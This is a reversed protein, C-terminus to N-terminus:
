TSSAAASAAGGVGAIPRSQLKVSGMDRLEKSSFRTTLLIKLSNDLREGFMHYAEAVKELPMVHTFLFTSDIKGQQILPLLVPWYNQVYAQSGKMELAKEMYAGIPFQNCFGFYDGILGIRGNKKVVKIAEQLIESSDTEAMTAFMAKHAVNRPFRFGVCDVCADPGGPMRRFIEEPVNSVEDFNITEAGFKRAMELRYPVNDISIVRKAGKVKLALYACALGVPGCGWVCVEDSPQIRACETGHYGTCLVDSLLLVQEDKLEPPVKLLGYDAFPRRVYEAQGGPFGGTLHTYGFAGSIRHGYLAEMQVSPNTTDCLTPMGELCYKCTGCNIEFSSVVRDGVKFNQVAPGVSEIVGMFEHGLIDGERMAKAGPVKNYYMHLDSGCITTATVRLIVDHPDTIMPKAREVAKVTEKDTWEMALMKETPHWQPNWSVALRKHEDDKDV